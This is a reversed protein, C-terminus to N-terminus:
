FRVAAIGPSTTMVTTSEKIFEYRLVRGGTLYNDARYKFMTIYNDVDEPYFRTAFDKNPFLTLVQETRGYNEGLHVLPLVALYLDNTPM